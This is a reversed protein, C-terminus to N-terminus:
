TKSATMSVLRGPWRRAARIRSAQRPWTFATLRSAVPGTPGAKVRIQLHLMVRGCRLASRGLHAPYRELCGACILLDADSTRHNGTTRRHFYVRGHRWNIKVYQVKWLLWRPSAKRIPGRHGTAADDRGRQCVVPRSHIPEPKAAPLVPQGVDCVLEVVQAVSRTGVPADDLM